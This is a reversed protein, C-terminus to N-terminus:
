CITVLYSQFCTFESWTIYISLFIDYVPFFFDDYKLLQHLVLFCLEKGVVSIPM